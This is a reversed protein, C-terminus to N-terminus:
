LRLQGLTNQIWYMNILLRPWGTADSKTVFQRRLPRINNEHTLRNYLMDMQKGSNINNNNNNNNTATITIRNNNNNNYREM